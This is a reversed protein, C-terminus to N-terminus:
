HEQLRLVACSQAVATPVRDGTQARLDRPGGPVVHVFHPSVADHVQRVCLHVPLQNRVVRVIQGVSASQVVTASRNPVACHDVAACRGLVAVNQAPEAYRGEAAVSQALEAYRDVAAVSQALEAYRGEVAVSQALEAYRGEVAVSQTPEAYRGGVVCHDAEGVNRVPAACHGVGVAQAPGLIAASLVQPESSHCPDSMVPGGRTPPLEKSHAPGAASQGM